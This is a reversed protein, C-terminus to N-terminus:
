VPILAYQVESDLCPTRFAWLCLVYHAWFLGALRRSCFKLGLEEWESVFFIGFFHDFFTLFGRFIREKNETRSSLKEMQVETVHKMLVIQDESLASIVAKIM